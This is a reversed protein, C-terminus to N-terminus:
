ILERLGFITQALIGALVIRNTDVIGIGDLPNTFEIDNFKFGNKLKQIPLNFRDWYEYDGIKGLIWLHKNYDLKTLEKESKIMCTDDYWSSYVMVRNQLLSDTKNPIVIIFNQEEFKKWKIANCDYKPLHTQEIYQANISGFQITTLIIILLLFRGKMIINKNLLNSDRMTALTQIYLTKFNLIM